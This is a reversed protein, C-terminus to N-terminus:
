FSLCGNSELECWCGILLECKTEQPLFVSLESFFLELSPISAVVKKSDPRHAFQQLVLDGQDEEKM